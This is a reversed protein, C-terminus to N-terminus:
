PQEELYRKIALLDNWTAKKLEQHQLLFRPHFTPMVPIATGSQYRYTGFRGRLRALPEKKGMLVRSAMDGMACIVLPGVAAIERALFSTCSVECNVDIVEPDGPCCKLCNSVYVQHPQLGIATMMKWLMMDEERGFLMDKSFEGSQSSWDGIVMLRCGKNGKGPVRGLPGLSLRCRTCGAIEKELNDSGAQAQDNIEQSGIHLDAPEGSRLEMELFRQVDRTCPYTDIGIAQLYRLKQRLARLMEKNKETM